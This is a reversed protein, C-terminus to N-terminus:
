VVAAAWLEGGTASAFAARMTEDATAHLQVRLYAELAENLSSEVLERAMEELVALQQQGQRAFTTAGSGDGGTPPQPPPPAGSTTIVQESSPQQQQLSDM